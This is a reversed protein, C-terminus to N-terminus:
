TFNSFHTPTQRFNPLDFIYISYLTSCVFCFCSYRFIIQIVALYVRGEQFSESRATDTACNELDFTLEGWAERGGAWYVSRLKRTTEMQHVRSWISEQFLRASKVTKKNQKKERANLVDNAIDGDEYCLISLVTAYLRRTVSSISMSCFRCDAYLNSRSNGRSRRIGHPLSNSSLVQCARANSGRIHRQSTTASQRKYVFCSCHSGPMLSM